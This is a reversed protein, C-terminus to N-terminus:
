PTQTIIPRLFIYIYGLCIKSHFFLDDNLKIQSQIEDIIRSLYENGLYPTWFWIQLIYPFEIMNNIMKHIDKAPDLRFYEYNEVSSISNQYKYLIDKLKQM